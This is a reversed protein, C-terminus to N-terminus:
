YVTSACCCEHISRLDHFSIDRDLVVIGNFHSDGTAVCHQGM